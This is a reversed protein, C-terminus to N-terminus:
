EEEFFFTIEKYEPNTPPKELIELVDWTWNGILNENSGCYDGGGRGNGIATLLPLPHCLCNKNEEKYRSLDFFIKKDHNVLFKNDLRYNGWELTEKDMHFRRAFEIDQISMAPDKAIVKARIDDNDAYDGIWAIRRKTHHLLSAIHNTFPNNWGVQEMLKFGYPTTTRSIENKTKIYVSYYQGM